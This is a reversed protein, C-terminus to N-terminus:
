FDEEITRSLVGDQFGLRESFLKFDPLSYLKQSLTVTGHKELLANAAEKMLYGGVGRGRTAELVKFFDIVGRDASILGLVSGNYIAVFSERGETEPLTRGDLLRHLSGQYSALDIESINFVSLRMNIRLKEQAM